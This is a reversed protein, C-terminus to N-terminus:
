LHTILEGGAALKKVHASVNESPAVTLLLEVWMEALVNWRLAEDPMKAPILNGLRIGDALVVEERSGTTKGHELALLSDFM